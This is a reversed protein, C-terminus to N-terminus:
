PRGTNVLQVAVDAAPDRLDIAASGATKGDRIRNNQVGSFRKRHRLLMGASAVMM